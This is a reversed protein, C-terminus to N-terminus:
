SSISLHGLFVASVVSEEHKWSFESGKHSARYISGLPVVNPILNTNFGYRCHSLKLLTHIRLKKMLLKAAKVSVFALLPMRLLFLYVFLKRLHQPQFITLIMCEILDRVRLGLQVGVKGQTRRIAIRTRSPLSPLLFEQYRPAM